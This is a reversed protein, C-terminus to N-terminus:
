ERGLHSRQPGNSAPISRRQKSSSSSGGVTSASRRSIRAADIQADTISALEGEFLEVTISNADDYAPSDGPLTPDTAPGTITVIEGVTTEIPAHSGGTPSAVMTAGISKRVPGSSPVRVTSRRTTAPMSTPQAAAASRAAGPGGSLDSRARPAPPGGSPRVPDRRRDLCVRWRRRAGSRSSFAASRTILAVIRVRETNGDVPIELCDTPELALQNNDLAFRYTNRGVWPAYLMIEALQTATDPEMSIALEVDLEDIAETTIRSASQESVEHDHLFNAFHLRLRRPLDKEQLRAVEIAPPAQSGNEHAGLDDATLTAVIAHGREVFKLLADSEVADWLGFMRLPRLADRASMQRGIIYGPVCTTLDSVDIQTSTDTRLGRPPLYRRRHDGDARM